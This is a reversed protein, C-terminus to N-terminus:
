ISVDRIHVGARELCMLKLLRWQDKHPKTRDKKQVSFYKGSIGGRKM